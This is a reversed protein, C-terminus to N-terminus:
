LIIKATGWVEPVCNVHKVSNCTINYTLLVESTRTKYGDLGPASDLSLFNIYKRVLHESFVEESIRGNKGLSDYRIEVKATAM